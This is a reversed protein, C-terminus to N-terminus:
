GTGSEVRNLGMLRGSVLRPQEQTADSIFLAIAQMAKLDRESIVLQVPRTPRGYNRQHNESALRTPEGQDIPILGKPSLISVGLPDGAANLVGDSSSLPGALIFRGYADRPTDTPFTGVTEPNGFAGLDRGLEQAPPVQEKLGAKDWL